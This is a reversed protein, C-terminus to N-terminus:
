KHLSGATVPHVTLEGPRENPTLLPYLTRRVDKESLARTEDVYLALALAGAHEDAPPTVIARLVGDLSEAAKRVSSLSVKDGRVIAFDSIRGTLWLYGDDDLRGVDGTAITDAAVLKGRSVGGEVGVKARYVTDATVLVEQEAPGRGADRLGLRVGDIPTGASAYRAPPERHAALTSVRPGAETLGYTLYLELDPNAALLRGTRAPDLAHGGVGLARLGRPLRGGDAQLDAVLLPTLASVTVDHAAVVDRYGAPTFPPGTVVLSAGTVLGALVQAVLAYSYHMPLTVLMRDAPGLGISRAHRAANRRLATIDHLCGTAMGSTGSTLLIAQGPRHTRVPGADLRTVTVQDTETGPRVLATAGLRRATARLRSAPTSAALLTPVLGALVLAFFVRILRTGNPLAVLVVSGPAFGAATFRDALEGVGACAGTAGPWTTRALLDEVERATVGTNM